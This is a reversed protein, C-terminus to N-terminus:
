SAAMTYRDGVDHACILERGKVAVAHFGVQKELPTYKKDKPGYRVLLNLAKEDFDFKQTRIEAAEQMTGGGSGSLQLATTHDGGQASSPSVSARLRRERRGMTFSRARKVAPRAPSPFGSDEYDDSENKDAVADDVDHDDEEDSEVVLKRKSSPVASCSKKNSDKSKTATTSTSGAETKANGNLHHEVTSSTSRSQRVKPSPTPATVRNRKRGKATVFFLVVSLVRAEEPLRM